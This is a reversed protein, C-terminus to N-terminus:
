TVDTIQLFDFDIVVEKLKTQTGREFNWDEIIKDLEIYDINFMHLLEEKEHKSM